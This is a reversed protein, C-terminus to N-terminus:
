TATIAEIAVAAQDHCTNVHSLCDLAVTMDHPLPARIVMPERTIPHEFSLQEAHLAQRGILTRRASIEPHSNSFAREAREEVADLLDDEVVNAASPSCPEALLRGFAGYFDDGVIPHGIASLHVRIQHNRGTLPMARVLSHSGFRKLVQYRTAALKANRANPEASMLVSHPAVGIPRDITGSESALEGEVIALYEKFVKGRQFGISLRRHALHEKAVVIVGSTMRDLRHVIGPRLLGPFATQQNFYHQLGNCLTDDQFNGAPHSAMGAPKNVVILWPDEYLIDLPLPRPNLLKDPPEILRITIRQGRFVRELRVPVGDITAQGACIMRQMRFPTYNRLHRILFSDIRVGTLYPEVIFEAKFAAKPATIM